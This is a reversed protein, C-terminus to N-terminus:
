KRFFDQKILQIRGQPFLATSRYKDSGSEFVVALYDKYPVIGESMPPVILSKEKESITLVSMPISTEGSLEISRDPEPIRYGTLRSKNKRGYSTSLILLGGSFAAGQVEDPISIIRDPYLLGKETIQSEIMDTHPDLTYGAMWGHNVGSKTNVRHSKAAPYSGDKDTFEGVWLIGESYSAFSGKVATHIFDKMKLNEENPTDLIDQLEVRYVGKGSAIWLHKSSAALGGVHGTHPSGDPNQLKLVKIFKQDKGSLVSITSPTKGVMYCSIFFLDLKSSYALGQPVAGQYLGPIVPGDLSVERYPAYESTGPVTHEDILIQSFPEPPHVQTHKQSGNEVHSCGAFFLVAIVTFLFYVKM